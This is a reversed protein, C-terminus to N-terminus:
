LGGRVVELSTQCCWVMMVTANFLVAFEPAENGCIGLSAECACRLLGSYVHAQGLCAIRLVILELDRYSSAEVM